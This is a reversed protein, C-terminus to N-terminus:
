AQATVQADRCNECLGHVVLDVDEVAFGHGGSLHERVQEVLTGTHHTVTRCSRCVLHFEDDPHALEWHGRGDGLHVEKALELEALLTLTRYVSAVSFDPVSKSVQEHIEEATLHGTAARLAEWVLQRQPTLRYGEDRLRSRVDM